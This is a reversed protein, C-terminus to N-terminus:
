LLIIGGFLSHLVIDGSQVMPAMMFPCRKCLELWNTCTVTEPGLKIRNQLCFM